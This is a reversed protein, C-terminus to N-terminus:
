IHILSLQLASRIICHHKNVTNPSLGQELKKAYYRQIDMPKVKTLSIGEEKFYPYVHKNLMHIYGDYTQRKYVDLHTYSVTILAGGRMPM